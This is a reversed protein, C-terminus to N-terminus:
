WCFTFIECKFSTYYQIKMFDSAAQQELFWVRLVSGTELSFRTLIIEVKRAIDWFFNFLDRQNVISSIYM